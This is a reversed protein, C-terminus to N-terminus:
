SPTMRSDSESRSEKAALAPERVRETPAALSRPALWQRASPRAKSDSVTLHALALIPARHNAMALAESALLARAALSQEM